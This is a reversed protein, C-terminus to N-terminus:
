KKLAARIDEKLQPNVKFGAKEAATLEASAESARDTMLYVVALNNHAEGLQANVTIANKYEREADPLSNSRFYASGLALSLWAPTPEPGTAQRHRAERLSGLQIDINRNQSQALQAGVTGPPLRSAQNARKQDELEKIRDDIRQDRATQDAADAISNAHFVDRCKQFATVADQYRKMAMYTQGLGYHALEFTPDLKISAQFEREAEEFKEHHLAENGSQYHQRAEAKDLNAKPNVAQSTSAALLSTRPAPPSSRPAPLSPAVAFLALVTSALVTTM